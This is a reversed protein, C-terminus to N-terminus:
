LLNRVRRRGGLLVKQSEIALHQQDAAELLLRALKVAHAQDAPEAVEIDTLLGDRDANCLASSLAVVLTM